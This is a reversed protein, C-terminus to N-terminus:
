ITVLGIHLLYHIYFLFFLFSVFIRVVDRMYVSGRDCFRM